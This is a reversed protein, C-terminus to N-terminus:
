TTDAIKKQLVQFNVSLWIAKSDEFCLLLLSNLPWRRELIAKYVFSCIRKICLGLVKHIKCCCRFSYPRCNSVPTAVKYFIKINTLHGFLKKQKKDLRDLIGRKYIYAKFIRTKNLQKQELEQSQIQVFTFPGQKGM